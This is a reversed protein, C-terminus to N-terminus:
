SEAVLLELYEQKSLHRERGLTEYKAKPKIMICDGQRVIKEIGGQAINTQITWAICDIADIKKANFEWRNLKKDNECKVNWVSNLDIWILYERDTSTDKCRVYYADGMKRWSDVGQNFYEGNVKYLEYTDNFKHEVLEGSEMVWTTQKKITKTSVLTPKVEAVMRDLGLFLLAIRRQELNPIQAIENFNLPQIEEWFDQLEEFPCDGGKTKLMRCGLNFETSVNNIVIEM